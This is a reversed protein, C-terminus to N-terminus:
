GLIFRRNTTIDHVRSDPGSHILARMRGPQAPPKVMCRMRWLNHDLQYGIASYLRERQIDVLLM